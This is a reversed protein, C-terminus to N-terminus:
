RHLTKKCKSELEDYRPHIDSADAGDEKNHLLFTIWNWGLNKKAKFYIMPQETDAGLKIYKFEESKSLDMSFCPGYKRQFILSWIERKSYDFSAKFNRYGDSLNIEFYNSVNFDLKGLFDDVNFEPDNNLCNRMTRTFRGDPDM